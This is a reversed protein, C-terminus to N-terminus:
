DLMKMKKKIYGNNKILDKHSLIEYYGYPSDLEESKRIEILVGEKILNNVIKETIGVLDKKIIFKEEHWLNTFLSFLVRKELMKMVINISKM